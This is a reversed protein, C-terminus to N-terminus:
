VEPRSVCSEPGIPNARGNMTRSKCGRRKGTEGACGRYFDSGKLRAVMQYRRYNGADKPWIDLQRGPEPQTFDPLPRGAWTPSPWVPRSAKQQADGYSYISGPEGSSYLRPIATGDPRVIQGKENRRPGGRIDLMSPSLEVVYFVGNRIPAVM